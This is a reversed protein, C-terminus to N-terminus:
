FIASPQIIVCLAVTRSVTPNIDHIGGKHCFVCVFDRLMRCYNFNLQFRGWFAGSISQLIVSIFFFPCCITYLPLSKFAIPKLDTYMRPTAITSVIRLLNKPTQPKKEYKKWKLSRQNETKQSGLFHRIDFSSCCVHFFGVHGNWLIFIKM